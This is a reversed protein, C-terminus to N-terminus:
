IGVTKIRCSFEILGKKSSTKRRGHLSSPYRHSTHLCLRLIKLGFQLLTALHDSCFYAGYLKLIHWIIGWCSFTGWVWTKEHKIAHKNVFKIRAEKEGSIEGRFTAQLVIQGFLSRKLHFFNKFFFIVCCSSFTLLKETLFYYNINFNNLSNFNHRMIGLFQPAYHFKRLIGEIELNHWFHGFVHPM